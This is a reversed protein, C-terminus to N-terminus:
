PLRGPAWLARVDEGREDRAKLDRVFDLFGVQPRWDMLRAAESLDHQEVREPLSVGYKTLLTAASPIQSECWDAGHRRFDQVVEPPMGHDTHVITMFRGFRKALAAEMAAVSASAVDRADVGNRLLKEGFALYPKPVFDHYRLMAVSAGTMEHYSRFLEEGIVKTASYVSGWGYAMSSAFIAARVGAARCAELLNFTGDVNVAFITADSVPPVHACHWAALHIVADCGEAARRCDDPTRTDCRVFEQERLDDGAPPGVDARRVAVDPGREKLLRCVTQGAIGSAGTVLVRM